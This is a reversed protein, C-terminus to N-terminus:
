KEENQKNLKKIRILVIIVLVEMIGLLILLAINDYTIPLKSTEQKVVKEIKVNEKETEDATLFQADLTAVEKGDVKAVKKLLVIYKDGAKSAENQKITMDKVQEWKASATVTTFLKNFETATQVKEYMDKQNYENNLQEILENLQNYQETSPLKAIGYYYTAKPADVIKVHGVNAIEDVGDIKENRVTTTEEINDTIEVKIRKTLTEVQYLKEEKLVENLNLQINKLILKENKQEDKVKAWMYITKNNKSLKEYTITDLFAAQNGQLDSKSNIFSLDMGEPDANEINTFAYKFNQTSIGKIYITYGRKAESDTTEVISIDENTAFVAIPIVAIFLFITLVSLLRFSTGKM